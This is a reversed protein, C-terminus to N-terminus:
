VKSNENKISFHETGVIPFMELWSDNSYNVIEINRIVAARGYREYQELVGMMNILHPRIGEVWRKNGTANTRIDKDSKYFNKVVSGYDRLVTHDCGCLVIKKYGMAILLPLIMLPGTHPSLIPLDLRPVAKVLGKELAIYQVTRNAFLNEKDVQKKTQYGLVIQTAKPLSNDADRLWSIYEEYVLPEHYPAFFHAKPAIKDINDHLFFNSVSFCDGQMMIDVNTNKISPGTALLFAVDSTKVKVLSKSAKLIKKKSPSYSIYRIITMLDLLRNLLVPPTIAVIIKYIQKLNM